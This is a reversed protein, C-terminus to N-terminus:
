FTNPHLATDRKQQREYIGVLIRETKELVLALDELIAVM